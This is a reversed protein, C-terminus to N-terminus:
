RGSSSERLGTRGNGWIVPQWSWSLGFREAALYLIESILVQYPMGEARAMICLDSVSPNLGPLTNIELLYPRGDEGLRFDVRAVDCVDMAEAARRTLEVLRVRLAEPIAAPCLYDPADVDDLERSKADYGYIGPTVSDADNAIELVPFFHYGTADYWNPRKRSQPSGPNGIFGVTFERGPLFEEALAPQRYTAVLWAVRERLEKENHVVAQLGVGMGTGERDPKVFLPFRLDPQLPETASRFLQFRATPLGVSQWIRKTQTKELSLANPFVRSATYPIGLLECLAPVQAERADGGLGEAINFCIDPRLQPLTEPLSGDAPCLYVSHGEARLANAIADVTERRDFEAGADPPDGPKRTVGEKLNALLAIRWSPGQSFVDRKPTDIPLLKDDNM